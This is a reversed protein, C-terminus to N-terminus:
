DFSLKITNSWASNGVKVRYELQTGPTNQLPTIGVETKTGWQTEYNVQVRLWVSTIGGGKVQVKIEGGGTVTDWIFVDAGILDDFGVYEFNKIQQSNALYPLASFAFLLAIALGAITVFKRHNM